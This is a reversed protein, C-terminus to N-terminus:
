RRDRLDEVLQRVDESTMKPGGDSEIVLFGDKEVLRATCEVVPEVRLGVGDEDIDIAMGPELGLRDRLKKPVVIRGAKDITTRM